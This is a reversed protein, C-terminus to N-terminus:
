VTSETKEPYKVINMLWENQKQFHTQLTGSIHHSVGKTKHEFLAAIKDLSVTKELNHVEESLSSLLNAQLQQIEM